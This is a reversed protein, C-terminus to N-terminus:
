NKQHLLMSLPSFEDVTFLFLFPLTIKKFLFFFDAETKLRNEVLGARNSLDSVM